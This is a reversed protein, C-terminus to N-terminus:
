DAVGSEKSVLLVAVWVAVWHSIFEYNGTLAIVSSRDFLLGGAAVVLLVAPWRLSSRRWLRLAGWGAAALALAHGALAVLGGGRFTAVYSSHEHNLFLVDKGTAALGRGCLRSDAVEDWVHRYVTSRGASARAVYASTHQEATEVRMGHNAPQQSIEREKFCLVGHGVGIGLGVVVLTTLLFRIPRGPLVLALALFGMMGGSRSATLYVGAVLAVCWAWRIWPRHNGGVALSELILAFALAFYYAAYNTNDWAIQGFAATLMRTPWILAMRLQSYFVGFGGLEIYREISILYGVFSGVVILALVSFGVWKAYRRFPKELLIAVFVALGVAGILGQAAAGTAALPSAGNWVGGLWSAAHAVLLGAATLVGRPGAKRLLPWLIGRFGMLALLGALFLHQQRYEPSSWVLHSGVVLVLAVVALFGRLVADQPTEGALSSTGDSM